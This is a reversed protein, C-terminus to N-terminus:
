IAPPPPEAATHGCNGTPDIVAIKIRSGRQLVPLLDSTPSEWWDVEGAQLAAAATSADPIIHWEIREFHAVKPGSTWDAEGDERPRYGAFREYVFRSGQVREDAKFRYPGSGVM